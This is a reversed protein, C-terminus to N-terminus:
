GYRSIGHSALYTDHAPDSLFSSAAADNDERTRTAGRQKEWLKKRL